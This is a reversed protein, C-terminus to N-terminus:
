GKILSNVIGNIHGHNIGIVSFRISEKLRTQMKPEIIVEKPHSTAYIGRSFMDAPLVSATALGAASAFSNKIFNRRKIQM